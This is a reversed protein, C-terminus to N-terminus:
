IAYRASHGVFGHRTPQRSRQQRHDFFGARNPYTGAAADPVARLLFREGFNFRQARTRQRHQIQRCRM